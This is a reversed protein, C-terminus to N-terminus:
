RYTEWSRFHIDKWKFFCFINRTRQLIILALLLVCCTTLSGVLAENSPVSCADSRTITLYNNWSTYKEQFEEMGPLTWFFMHIQCKSIHSLPSCLPEPNIIPSWSRIPRKKTIKHIQSTFPFIDQSETGILPLSFLSFKQLLFLFKISKSVVIRFWELCLVSWYSNGHSISALSKLHM